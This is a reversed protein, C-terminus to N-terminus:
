SLLWELDETQLTRLLGADESLLADALERKTTQLDAIKEEVTDRAILRYAFVHRTQGIRHARDIAQAEVAPNWWPDLLFVYDAATLNLGVGGAKLSILFVPCQGDSEFRAVREARDRTRGDLYEYVIGEDDLRGRLLGLLTTFQSFVLAKHGEDALERLRPLLIDLKASAEGSRAADVLAPHSAAQRLRLLAELVQMKSRALGKRAVTALLTHRYHERLEDYFRRQPPELDCHITQEVKEPLEPAVQEKTRRLIFPRLARALLDIEVRDARGPGITRGFATAPGLFGPNLFEFLSWIEGLHNEIPTGTLALRHRGRLVRAAKASATTANKIAQAEDLILYDFEHEALRAADRRLTGYTTLVLDYDAVSASARTDGTYDLVRLDPAFRVAEDMWNYVLSRPVVAVSSHPADPERSVRRGELLALVMVTKGLGMDDALCGGFGFRRLFAFWGLALQQYDRLRGRFSAPPAIPSIGSFQALEARARAFAEDIRVAPQAELLADLLATQSPRYRVHDDKPEGFAAIRAYRRLWEEPVMGRTGDDLIVTAEGKRLAALLEAIQVSHGEDFEVQGHLEFWDVGSRVQLQLARAARFVRGEAEVHWGEEVLTRVAAPFREVAIALTGAKTDFYWPRHFGIEELRKLAERERVAQRRVMRRRAPDYGSSEPRAPVVTGAYDFEVAADLEERTGHGQPRSSRALRIRPQPIASVVEYRLVEPLQLPDVDSRALAEVLAPTAKAPLVTRGSRRLEILWTLARRPDLRAVAGRLVLFDPSLLLEPETVPISLDDRTLAGDVVLRDDPLVSVDLRFIWPLGDDWALPTPDLSRPGSERLFLRGSRAILPLVREILPGTIRFSARTVVSVYQMGAADPDTAGLLLSVIERDGPDALHPVDAIALAAPQPKGWEGKKKRTRWHVQVTPVLDGRASQPDIVYLLEGQSYRSAYPPATSASREQVSQLFRQWAERPPAPAPAGARPMLAADDPAPELHAGDAIPEDLLLGEADAALIVAWIHKCFDQRDAFYPCQCSALFADGDRSLRVRYWESGRVTAVVESGSGEIARVAGGLFYRNGRTRTRESVDRALAEALGM